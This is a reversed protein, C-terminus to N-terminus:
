DGYTTGQLYAQLRSEIAEVQFQQILSSFSACFPAYASDERALQALQTKLKPIHGSQALDLLSELTRRTPIASDPTSAMAPEPPDDYVWELELTSAVQEFLADADIPKALFSNGGQDLANQQDALSVSASSVIIPLHAVDARSRLNALLQFGDMLPMRLDTIVLDPPALHIQDLGDQGNVAELVEFGLPELLNLLVARNEWRDDVVLIKLPRDSLAHSQRRYGQIRNHHDSPAKWDGSLPLDLTFFFESGAGPRSKVEIIGGMMQVLRQSIALGLGTGEAQKDRTGGQEFAQFLSALHDAAIGVGTDIVQFLLAARTESVALVEVRFIVQGQDTFKIANGLLNVLVQRLRKEDVEVGEPLRLSPQYLLDIRKERAKVECLEVVGQLLAPLHIARPILELKRAEIKSLDLVDNILMLLHTGCQHIIDIGRREQSALDRSRGLIQAYGLIGNLPTRLEHSMNALFESKARNAADAADKAQKLKTTREAVREELVTFSAQLQGSMQNFADALGTLEQIASGGVRRSLEGQAIADSAGQLRLIPRIIWRATWIGLVTALSLAGLCLLVTTRNNANIQAMVDSEPVAVVLRWDIGYDDRWPRVQVFHRQGNANVTLRQEDGGNAQAELPPMQAAVANILPDSITTASLRTAGEDASTVISQESSSAILEGGPELIFVQGSPSVQLRQLFTGLQNLQLELGLYAWFEGASDFLPHVAKIVIYDQHGGLSGTESTTFLEGGGDAVEINSASFVAVDAWYPAAARMATQYWSSTITDFDYAQVLGRRGGATDTAYEAARQGPLNEYVLIDQGNLWRGAGIQTGDRLTYGTYYLDPFVKSQQWFYRESTQRDSLDLDGAAIAEQTLQALQHPVALYTDLQDDVRQAASDMLQGTLNDVTQRGNQFSLYGVLGVVTFIQILFPVTLIAQLPLKHRHFLRRIPM